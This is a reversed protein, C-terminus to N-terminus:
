SAMEPENVWKYISEGSIDMENDLWTVNGREIRAQKFLEVDRFQATMPNRANLIFNEMDVVRNKGNSFMVELKYAEIHKVSVAKM